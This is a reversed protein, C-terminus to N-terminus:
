EKFRTFDEYLTGCREQKRNFLKWRGGNHSTNDYSVYEGTKPHKYLKEGHENIINTPLYGGKEALKKIEKETLPTTDIKYREKRKEEESKEPVAEEKTAKPKREERRQEYFLDEKKVEVKTLSENFLDEKKVDHKTLSENFLDEKKIEVKILSKSL